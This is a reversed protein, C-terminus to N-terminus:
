HNSLVLVPGSTPMHERGHVRLDQIYHKQLFRCSAESLGVQGVLNDFEVMQGAFKRAPKAFLGRLIAALPPIKQWGFSSVLDDLNIQTLIDLQSTMQNNMNRLPSGGRPYLKQATRNYVM